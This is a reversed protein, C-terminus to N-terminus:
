TRKTGNWGCLHFWVKVRFLTFSGVGVSLTTSKTMINTESESESESEVWLATFEEDYIAYSECNNNVNRSGRNIIM